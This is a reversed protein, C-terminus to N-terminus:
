TKNEEKYISHAAEVLDILIAADDGKMKHKEFETLVDLRQEHTLPFRFRLREKLKDNWDSLDKVLNQLRINESALEELEPVHKEDMADNWGQQYGEDYGVGWEETSM